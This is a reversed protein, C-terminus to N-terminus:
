IHLAPDDGPHDLADSKEATTPHNLGILFWAVEEHVVVLVWRSLCCSDHIGCLKGRSQSIPNAAHTNITGKIASPALAQRRRFFAESIATPPKSQPSLLRHFQGSSINSPLFESPQTITEKTNRAPANFTLTYFLHHKVSCFVFMVCRRINYLRCGNNLCKIYRM